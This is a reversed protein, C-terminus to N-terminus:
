PTAGSSTVDVDSTDWTAIERLGIAVTAIGSPPDSDEMDLDTVDLVGPVSMAAAIVANAVADKGCAQADGMAVIAAKIQADGDAPYLDADYEVTIDVYIPVETPYRWRYYHPVGASDDIWDGEDGNTEIGAAVSGLLAAAIEAETVPPSTQILAEISHPTLGDADTADTKNEFVTCTDVGDLALLAERIADIVASGSTSLEDERRTRLDEDSEIDDGLDADSLNKANDWGSVASQIDNLTGSPAPIPGTVVSQAEVDVAATGEGIYRWHAANDTIDEATTTPGGSGASQGATICVYCRAANTVKYGVAYTTTAAWSPLLEITANALTAFDDTSDEVRVLSGSPVVTDPDGTLTEIVWSYTAAERVTGTLACLAELATDVAADPDQSSNIVEALEWLLAEREAFIATLKGFAASDHLKVAQGFADRLLENLEERIVEFTKPVFGTETLGYAM